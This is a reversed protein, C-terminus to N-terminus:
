LLEAKFTNSLKVHVKMAKNCFISWSIWCKYSKISITKLYEMLKRDSYYINNRKLNLAGLYIMEGYSLM